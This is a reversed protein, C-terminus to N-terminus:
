RRRRIRQRPTAVQFDDDTNKTRSGWHDKKLEEGAYRYDLWGLWDRRNPLRGTNIEHNIVDRGVQKMEESTNWKVMPFWLPETVDVMFARTEPFYYSTM